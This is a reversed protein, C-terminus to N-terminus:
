APRRKYCPSRDEAPARAGAPAETNKVAPAGAWAPPCFDVETQVSSRPRVTKADGIFLNQNLSGEKKPKKGGM